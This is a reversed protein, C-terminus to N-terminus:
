WVGPLLSSQPVPKKGSELCFGPKVASGEAMRELVPRVLVEFTAAAAFPNRSLCFVPRGGVIMALM